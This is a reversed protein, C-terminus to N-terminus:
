WAMTCRDHLGSVAALVGGPLPGLWLTWGAGMCMGGGLWALCLGCPTCVQFVCVCM